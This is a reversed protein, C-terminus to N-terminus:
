QWFRLDESRDISDVVGSFQGRTAARIKVGKRQAQSLRALSSSPTNITSSQASIRRNCRDSFIGILTIARTIPHEFFVTFLANAESPGGRYSCRLAFFDLM